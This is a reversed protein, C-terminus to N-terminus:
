DFGERGMNVHGFWAGVGGLDWRGRRKGMHFKKENNKMKKEGRKFGEEKIKKKV